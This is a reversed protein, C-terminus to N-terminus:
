SEEFVLEKNPRKTLEGYNCERLRQDIKIDDRRDAFLISASEIARILDSSFVVDYVQSDIQLAAMQTQEIGKLSLPIQDWGTAIKRENDITSGHVYYMIEVM